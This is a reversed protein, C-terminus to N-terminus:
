SAIKVEEEGGEGWRQTAEAECTMAAGPSLNSGGGSGLVTVAIHHRPRDVVLEGELLLVLLARLACSASLVQGLAAPLARPLVPSPATFGPIHARLGAPM